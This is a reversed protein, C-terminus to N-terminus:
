PVQAADKELAKVENSDDQLQTADLDQQIEEVSTGPTLAADDQPVPSITPIQVEVTPTPTELADEQAGQYMDWGLWGLVAVAALGAAVALWTALKQGGGPTEVTKPAQPAPAVEGPAMSPSTNTPQGYAQDSPKGQTQDFPMMPNMM